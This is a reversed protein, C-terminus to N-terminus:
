KTRIARVKKEDYSSCLVRFLLNILKILARVELLTIQDKNKSIENILPLDKETPNGKESLSLIRSNM